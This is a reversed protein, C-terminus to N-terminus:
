LVAVGEGGGKRSIFLLVTTGRKKLRWGWGEKGEASQGSRASLGTVSSYQRVTETKVSSSATRGKAKLAVVVLAHQRM